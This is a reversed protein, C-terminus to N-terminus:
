SEHGLDLAAELRDAADEPTHGDWEPPRPVWPVDFLDWHKAEYHNSVQGTPLTATVIFWGGGFCLDGDAHRWSKVVPIGQAVWGRAAHANYLMRYHYLENHTHYGDSTEGSTREDRLRDIEDLLAPLDTRAHAIFERDEPTYVHAVPNVDVDDVWTDGDPIVASANGVMLMGNMHDAGDQDRWPAWPGETAMACRSRAVKHKEDTWNSM